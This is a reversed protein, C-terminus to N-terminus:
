YLREEHLTYAASHGSSFPSAGKFGRDRRNLVAPATSLQQVCRHRDQLHEASRAGSTIAQNSQDVTFILRKDGATSAGACVGTRSLLCSGWGPLRGLIPM